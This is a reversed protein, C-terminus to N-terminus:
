LRGFRKKLGFYLEEEMRFLLWARKFPIYGFKLRLRIPIRHFEITAISRKILRLAYKSEERSFRSRHIYHYRYSDIVVLWRYREFLDLDEDIVQLDMLSKRMSADATLRDFHKISVAHTSSGEHQRYYYIANSASVERSALYHLRTTNDDSFLRCSTDYPIEKHLHTRIMYVGHIRWDLSLRFAENGTYLGAIPYPYAETKGNEYVYRLDFLVCDTKPHDAFVKLATELADPALWDDSDLMCTYTGDVWKLGENRARAQGVNQGMEVIKFRYDRRAYEQLIVLSSDTSADDICVAQFDEHTQAILSDLCARLHTCANYVAILVSVRSM